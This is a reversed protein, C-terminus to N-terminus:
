CGTIIKVIFDQTKYKWNEYWLLYWNLKRTGFMLMEYEDIM